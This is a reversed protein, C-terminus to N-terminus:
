KLAKFPDASNTAPNGHVSHGASVSSSTRKIRPTHVAPKSEPIAAPPVLAKEGLMARLTNTLNEAEIRASAGVSGTPRLDAVAAAAVRLGGVVLLGKADQNAADRQLVENAALISSPYNGSEFWINALKMWPAASTPSDKAAQELLAIARDRNGKTLELDAEKMVQETKEEPAKAGSATAACGALLSVGLVMGALLLHRTGRVPYLSSNFLQSSRM